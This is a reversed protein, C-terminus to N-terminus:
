EAIARFGALTYMKRYATMWCVNLAFPPLKYEVNLINATHLSHFSFRKIRTGRKM